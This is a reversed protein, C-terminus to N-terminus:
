MFHTRGGDVVIEAGTLSPMDDSALLVAIDAIESPEVLRGTPTTSLGEAEVVEPAVGRSVATQRALEVARETRVNGPCIANVRIRQPALERSLTKTLARIAGNTSAIAAAGPGPERGGVGTINIISGGGKGAMQPVAARSLRVGALFKLSLAALFQEDTLTLFSGAPAGGVNNVLIDIGGWETAAAVLADVAEPTSLDGEVGRCVEVTANLESVAGRLAEPNRAGIVVRAGERVFRAALARGIGRSGGSVVAVKGALRGANADSM